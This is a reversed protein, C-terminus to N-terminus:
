PTNSEYQNFEDIYDRIYGEPDNFGKSRTVKGMYFVPLGHTDADVEKYREIAENIAFFDWCRCYPVRVMTLADGNIVHIEWLSHSECVGRNHACKEGIRPRKGKVMLVDKHETRTLVISNTSHDNYAIDCNELALVVGAHYKMMDSYHKDYEMPSKKLTDFAERFAEWQQHQLSKKPADPLGLYYGMKRKKVIDDYFDRASGYDFINIGQARLHLIKAACSTAGSDYDECPLYSDSLQAEGCDKIYQFGDGGIRDELYDSLSRFESAVSYNYGALTFKDYVPYRYFQFWSMKMGTGLVSEYKDILDIHYSVDCGNREAEQLVPKLAIAKKLSAMERKTIPRDQARAGAPNTAALHASQLINLLRDNEANVMGPSPLAAPPLEGGRLWGFDGASGPDRADYGDNVVCKVSCAERIGDKSYLYTNDLIDLTYDRTFTGEIFGNGRTALQGAEKLRKEVAARNKPSLADLPSPKDKQWNESAKMIENAMELVDPKGYYQPITASSKLGIRSGHGTMAWLEDIFCEKGWQDANKKKGKAGYALAGGNNVRWAKGNKDVIIHDAKNGVVETNGLLIDIAYDRRLQETMEAQKEKSAKKFWDKLPVAGEIYRTLRVPEKGDDYLKGDPVNVGAARYFADAETENQMLALKGGRKRVFLAGDPAKVLETGEQGLVKVVELNDIASLETPFGQEDTKYDAVDLEENVVKIIKIRKTRRKIPQTAGNKSLEQVRREAAEKVEKIKERTEAGLRGLAVVAEEYESKSSFIDRPPKASKEIDEWIRERREIRELLKRADLESAAGKIREAYDAMISITRRPPTGVQLDECDSQYQMSERLNDAVRMGFEGSPISPHKDWNFTAEVGDLHSVLYCEPDYALHGFYESMIETMGNPYGRVAYISPVGINPHRLGYKRKRNFFTNALQTPNGNEDTTIDELLESSLELSGKLRVDVAHGIEHVITKFLNQCADVDKGEFKSLNIRISNDGWSYAGKREPNDDAEFTIDGLIESADFGINDFIRGAFDLAARFTRNFQVRTEKPLSRGLSSDYLLGAYERNWSAKDNVPLLVDLTRRNIEQFRETLVVGIRKDYKRRVEACAKKYADEAEKYEESELSEYNRPDPRPVRSLEEQMPSSYKNWGLKRLQARNSYVGRILQVAEEGRPTKGRTPIMVTSGSLISDVNTQQQNESDMALEAIQSGISEGQESVLNKTSAQYGLDPSFINKENLSGKQYLEYRKVGLWARKFSEPQAKFYDEFTLSAPVQRYAPEGTEKEYDKQAQYYYKLRTSASLDEWRRNWGKQKAQANYAEKALADFDANAAPREEELEVVNGEEDRLEVYPVLTCRCNPHIPPRRASAIEEGRWIQGDYAGCHPCTKGDLTGVFKVGDIIDDNAKITEVRANNSVGNIITRAMMTAGVKTTTLIGDSFNSEKSGRIAKSIEDVSLSEVSARQCVSAIRELDFREWKGLWEAITGGDIGQGDLIAKQQKETLTKCFREERAKRRQEALARNCEKVTEESAKQLVSSSTEFVLDRAADYTPKRLKEVRVILKKVRVLEKKIDADRQPLEKILLKAVSEDTRLTLAALKIALDNAVGQLRTQYDYLYELVTKETQKAM